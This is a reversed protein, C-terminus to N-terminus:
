PALRKTNRVLTVDNEVPEGKFEMDKALIRGSFNAGRRTLTGQGYCPGNGFCVDGAVVFSSETVKSIALSWAFSCCPKSLRLTGKADRAITCAYGDAACRQEGVHTCSVICTYDGLLDDGPDVPAAASLTPAPEPSASVVPLPDESSASENPAAPTSSLVLPAVPPHPTSSGSLGFVVGAICGLAVGGLALFVLPNTRRAPAQTAAPARPLAVEAIETTRVPAALAAATPGAMETSAVPKAIETIPGAAETHKSGTTAMAADLERLLARGDPQRDPANVAVSRRITAELAPAVTRGHLKPTPRDHKDLSAQMNEVREGAGLPERDTLLETLLLGLAFVDTYKGTKKGAFQEPTGYHPSFMQIASTTMTNGTTTEDASELVKAIGFDLVKLVPRSQGVVRALFINAPKIDRHVVGQEHAFALEELVPRLFSLVAAEAQPPAGLRRRGELFEELSEGELLEMAMWPRSTGDPSVYRGMDFVQRVHARGRFIKRTLKAEEQFKAVFIEQAQANLHEPVRLVKVAVEQDDLQDWARYVEGFGGVGLLGRLEYRGLVTGKLPFDGSDSM